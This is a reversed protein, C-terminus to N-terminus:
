GRSLFGTGMTCSALNAGRSALRILFIEGGVPIRDGSRGARLSDTYRSAVGGLECWQIYVISTARVCAQLPYLWWSLFQLGVSVQRGEEDDDRVKMMGKIRRGNVQSAVSPVMHGPTSDAELFSYWSFEQLYLCGTRLPLPRVVKV